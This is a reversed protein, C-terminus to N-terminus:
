EPTNTQETETQETVTNDEQQQDPTENNDQESSPEDQSNENPTKNNDQEVPTSKEPTNTQETETQETVTNDEQQQDPTENNDQESSPEDQSNENPTKNNDQEVPTSKEPATAQTSTPRKIHTQGVIKNKLSRVGRGLGKRVRKPAVPGISGGQYVKNIGEYGLASQITATINTSSSSEDTRTKVKSTTITGQVELGSQDVDASNLEVNGGVKLNLTGSIGSRQDIVLNDKKESSSKVFLGSGAIMTATDVGMGGRSRANGAKFSKKNVGAPTGGGVTMKYKQIDERIIDARSEVKLNGGINGEVTGGSNLNAGALLVDGKVNLTTKNKINFTANQNTVNNIKKHNKELGVHFNAGNNGKGASFEVAVDLRFKSNDEKHTSQASEITLEKADINLSDADVQTGIFHAKNKANVTLNKSKISGGTVTTINIDKRIRTVRLGFNGHVGSAGGGGGIDAGGGDTKEKEITTSTLGEFVVNDGSLSVDSKTEINTGQLRLDGDGSSINIAGGSKITSAVGTTAVKSKTSEMHNASASVSGGTLTLEVSVSGSFDTDSSDSLVTTTNTAQKFDVGKAGYIDIGGTSEFNTGELSVKNTTNIKINGGSKFSGVVATSSVTKDKKSSLYGTVGATAEATADVSLTATGGTNDSEDLQETINNAQSNTYDAANIVIDGSAEYNTGVDRIAGEVDYTIGGKSKFNTTISTISNTRSKSNANDNTITTQISPPALSISVQPDDETGLKNNNLLEKANMGSREDTKTDTEDENNAHKIAGDISSGMGNNTVGYSIGVAVSQEKKSLKQINKAAYNHVSKAKIMIGEGAFAQTGENEISNNAVIVLNGAANLRSTRAQRQYSSDESDTVTLKSGVSANDVDVNASLTLKVESTDENMKSEDYVAKFKVDNAKVVLDGKSDLTAGEFNATNEAFIVVNDGSINSGIHTTDVKSTNTTTTTFSLTVNATREGEDADTSFGFEKKKVTTNETDTLKQATINVDGQTSGLIVRAQSTINAGEINLNKQAIISLDGDAQINSQVATQTTTTTTTETSNLGLFGSSSHSTSYTSKELTINKINVEGDTRINIGGGSIIDSATVNLDNKTKISLGTTASITTKDLFEEHYNNVTGHRVKLTELNINGGVDLIVTGGSIKGSIVDLDNKTTISLSDSKIEGGANLLYTVDINTNGTAMIMADNAKFKTPIYLRPVRVVEGSAVKQYVEWIIPKDLSAIQSDTLPMGYVPITMVHMPKSKVPTGDPSLKSVKDPPLKSAKIFEAANDYLTQMMTFDDGYELYSVANLRQAQKKILQIEFDTNGLKRTTDKIRLKEALYNIDLQSREDTVYLANKEYLYQANSDQAPLYLGYPNTPLSETVNGVMSADYQAETYEIGTAENNPEVEEEEITKDPEAVKTDEIKEDDEKPPAEPSDDETNQTKKSLEQDSLANNREGTYLSGTEIVINKAFLGAKISSGKLKERVTSETIITVRPRREWCIIFPKTCVQRTRFIVTKTIKFLGVSQNTVKSNLVNSILNLTNTASLTGGINQIEKFGLINLNGQIASITPRDNDPDFEDLYEEHFVKILQETIENDAKSITSIIRSVLVPEDKKGYNNASSITNVVKKAVILIDKSEIDGQNILEMEGVISDVNSSPTLAGESHAMRLQTQASICGNSAVCGKGTNHIYNPAVLDLTEDSYIFGKNDINGSIGLHKFGTIAANVAISILTAKLTLNGLSSIASHEFIVINKDVKISNDVESGTLLIMAKKGEKPLDPSSKTGLTLTDVVDLHFGASSKLTGRLDLKNIAWNIGKAIFGDVINVNFIGTANKVINFNNGAYFAYQSKIDLTAIKNDQTKKQITLNNTSKVSGNNVFTDVTFTSDVALIKSNTDNNINDATVELTTGKVYGKNNLTTTTIDLTDDIFIRAGEKNDLVTKIELTAKKASIDKQNNLTNASITLEDASFLLGQNNVALGNDAGKTQKITLQNNASIQASEANNLTKGITLTTKKAAINKENNLTSAAINLEDKSLLLGKNNVTLLQNAPANDTQKVSLQSDASIQANDKNDLTNDINLTIENASIYGSNDLTNAFVTLNGTSPTSQTAGDTSTINLSSRLALLGANIVELLKTPLVSVTQKIILQEDALIRANAKNNVSTDVNLTVKNAVINKKNNLRDAFIGLVDKSYLLGKNDVVLNNSTTSNSTTSDAFTLTNKIILQSDASIQANNKNSLKKGINLTIENASIYGSNDLTNASITLNGTSPTSQTTGNASAINLSSKLALLGANIVELFKTSLANATQKITLQEDALIKAGAQNSLKSDVNLTIKNASLNGKNDFTDASITLSGTSPASNSQETDAINLSSKLALLGANIVALIGDSLTNIVLRSDVLIQANKANTFTKGISLLAEGAVINKQNDFKTADIALQNAAFMNGSNTVETAKIRIDKNALLVGQSTLQSANITISEEQSNLKADKGIKLDGQTTIQINKKTGLLANDMDVSQSSISLKGENVNFKVRNNSDAGQISVTKAKIDISEKAIYQVKNLAKYDGNVVNININKAFRVGGQQATDSILDNATINLNNKAGISQVAIEVKKGANIDINNAYFHNDSNSESSSNSNSNSETAKEEEVSEPTYINISQDSTLIIDNKSSLIGAIEIDGEATFVIDDTSTAMNSDVKVGVNKGHSILHIRNAYMGGVVSADIAYRPDNDNDGEDVGSSLRALYSFKSKGGVILMNKANIVGNISVGKAIIDLVDVTKADLGNSDININGKNIDFSLNGENFKPIGTTLTARSTNIFGCGNCTVGYPNAIIVGAKNGVVELFGAINSTKGSVVENLILSASGGNLLAPNGIVSAALDSRRAEGKGDNFNIFVAGNQNVDFSNYRNHSLGNKNPTAIYILQTKQNRAKVVTTSKDHSQILAAFVWGPFSTIIINFCLFYTFGRKLHLM